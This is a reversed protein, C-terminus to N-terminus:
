GREHSEPRGRRGRVAGCRCQARRRRQLRFVRVGINSFPNKGGLRKHVLDQFLFTAWSMHGVLSSEEIRIVRTINALAKAQAPSRESAPRSVGTCEDIRAELERRTMTVGAPLGTAVPYQAEEPRPHNQCYYQYVARLDSRFWYGMAGGPLVASTLLAGDYARPMDRRSADMEILKAAVNGGWSQGHAIVLKPPGSIPVIKELFYRRASETDEIAMGVGYGPRRYSSGVFAHGERVFVAFRALDEDNTSPEVASMRPGGHAHVILVGTWSKPVAALIYAGNVDKDSYCAAAEQPVERPCPWPTQGYAASCWGVFHFALVFALKLKM